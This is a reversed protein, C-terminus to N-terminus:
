GRKGMLARIGTCTGRSEFGSHKPLHCLACWLVYGMMKFGSAEDLTASHPITVILTPPSMVRRIGKKMPDVEKFVRDMIKSTEHESSFFRWVILCAPGELIGGWRELEM